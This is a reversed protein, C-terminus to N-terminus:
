KENELSNKIEETKQSHFNKQKNVKRRGIMKSGCFNEIELLIKKM